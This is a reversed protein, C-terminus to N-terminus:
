SQPGTMRTKPCTAWFSRCLKRESTLLRHGLSQLLHFVTREVWPVVLMKYDVCSVYWKHSSETVFGLSKMAMQWGRLFLLCQVNDHKYGRITEEEWIICLPVEFFNFQMDGVKWSIARISASDPIGQSSLRQLEALHIRRRSLQKWLVCILWCDSVLMDRLICLFRWL